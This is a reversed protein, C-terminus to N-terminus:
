VRTHVEIIRWPAKTRKGAAYLFDIKLVVFEWEKAARHICKYAYELVQPNTADLGYFFKGCNSSNAPIGQDNRIIWDPHEQVLKSHKDCAFPALWIGPRMKQARIDGAVAKMSDTSSFKNPKLSNWDGWATMYGDDVVSVNMPCTKRLGALKSFNTRLSEESINEYYHYWSCWGTLLPGNQLPKAQNYSAVARLYHVLPEEDYTAPSELQAFAWDTQIVGRSNDGPLL